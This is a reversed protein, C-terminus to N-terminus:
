LGGWSSSPGPRRAQGASRSGWPPNGAVNRGDMNGAGRGRSGALTPFDDRRSQTPGTSDQEPQREERDRPARGGRTRTNSNSRPKRVGGRIYVYGSGLFFREDEDYKELSRMFEPCGQLLLLRWGAKSTGARTKENAGYTKSHTVRLAGRLGRNLSFLSAPVCRPNFSRFQERLIVSVSGRNEVADKPFLTFTHHENPVSEVVRRYDHLHQINKPSLGLLGVKGWLNSWKRAKFCQLNNEIMHCEARHVLDHFEGTDPVIWDTIPRNGDDSTPTRPRALVVFQVVDRTRVESGSRIDIEGSVLERMDFVRTEDLDISMSQNLASPMYDM